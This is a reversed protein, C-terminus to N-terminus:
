GQWRTRTAWLCLDVAVLLTVVALLSVFTVVGSLTPCARSRRAATMAMASM